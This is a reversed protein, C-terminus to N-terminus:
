QSNSVHGMPEKRGRERTPRGQHHAIEAHSGRCPQAQHTLDGARLGMRTLPLSAVRQSRPRLTPTRGQAAKWELRFNNGWHLCYKVAGDAHGSERSEATAALDSISLARQSTLQARHVKLLVQLILRSRPQIGRRLAAPPNRFWRPRSKRPCWTLHEKQPWLLMRHTQQSGCAFYQFKVKNWLHPFGTVFLFQLSVPLLFFGCTVLKHISWALLAFLCPWHSHDLTLEGWFQSFGTGLQM